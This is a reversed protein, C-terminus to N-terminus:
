RKLQKSGSCAYGKNFPIMEKAQPECDCCSMKGEFQNLQMQRIKNGNRQMYLRFKNNDFVNEYLGKSPRFDTTSLRSIDTPCSSPTNTPVQTSSM